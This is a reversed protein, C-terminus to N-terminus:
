GEFDTRLNIVANIAKQLEEFGVPKILYSAVGADYGGAIDEPSAKASVMIVPIRALISDKQIFRMVDLGSIGPMKWDLLVLSPHTEVIMNIAQAGNRVTVVGFDMIRVMEALMEATEPDDDVIVILSKTNTM